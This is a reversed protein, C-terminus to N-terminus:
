VHGPSGGFVAGLKSQRTPLVRGKELMGAFTVPHPCREMFLPLQETFVQHTSQVDLACYRMLEQFSDRVDAM